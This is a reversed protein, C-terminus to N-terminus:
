RPSDTFKPLKPLSRLQFYYAGFVKRLSGPHEDVNGIGRLNGGDHGWELDLIM